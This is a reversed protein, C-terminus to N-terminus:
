RPHGRIAESGTVVDLLETTTAEQRVRREQQRLDGLKDEVNEHASEMVRLRAGNESAFSELAARVLQSLVFEAVLKEMLIESELNHLPLPGVVRDAFSSLDPPFITEKEIKWQGGSSYKAFVVEVSACAGEGIRRYLETAVRRATELAGAAHTAMPVTWAVAQGHEEAYLAGRAGVVCLQTQGDGHGAAYEILRENFAGVLGHESCFVVTSRSGPLDTRWGTVEGGFIGVAHAIAESVTETYRRVGGLADQGEQVRIAALSRMAGIIELLGEINVIKGKLRALGEM